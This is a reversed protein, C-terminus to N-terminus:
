LCVYFLNVGGTRIEGNNCETIDKPKIYMKTCSAAFALFSEKEEELGRERPVPPTPDRPAVM